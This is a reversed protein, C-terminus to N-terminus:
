TSPCEMVTCYDLFGVSKWYKQARLNNSLVELRLKRGGFELDKLSEFGTTGLGHRRHRETIFFQRIYVYEDEAKWLAYGIISDELEFVNAKYSTSLWNKIRQQLEALAMTNGHGEDQILQANMEALIDTDSEDARRVKLM